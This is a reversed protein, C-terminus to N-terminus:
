SRRAHAAVAAEAAEWLRDACVEWSLEGAREDALRRLEQRREPRRILDLFTDAMSSVSYPDFYAAALGAVEPMPPINSCALVGGTGLIEAATVPNTECTSAFVNVQAHHLWAPVASRDIPGLYKVRGELGLESVRALVREVYRPEDPRGALVLDPTQPEADVCRRYADLVRLHNKYAYFVSFYLLYPRGEYPHPPPTARSAAINGPIGTHAVFTKSEVGKAFGSVLELAHRSHLLVADASRLTRVYVRRLAGARLRTLSLGPYMAAGVEPMFPLMNNVTAVTPFRRCLPRSLIGGMSYVVDAGLEEALAPLKRRYWLWRGAWKGKPKPHRLVKLTGSGNGEVESATLLVAESGRPARRGVATSLEDRVAIIGPSGCLVADIVLRM